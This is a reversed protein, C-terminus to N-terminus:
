FPLEDPHQLKFNISKEMEVRRRDVLNLDTDVLEKEYILSKYVVNRSLHDLPTFAFSNTGISIYQLSNDDHSVDDREYFLTTLNSCQCFAGSEIQCLEKPLRFSSLMYCNAFTEENIISVKDSIEITSLKTCGYFAESDINIVNPLRVVELHRCNKFARREVYEADSCVITKNLDVCRVICRAGNTLTRYVLGDEVFMDVTDHFCVKRDRIWRVSYDLDQIKQEIYGQDFGQDLLQCRIDEIYPMILTDVLKAFDERLCELYIDQYSPMKEDWERILYDYQEYNISITRYEEIINFLLAKKNNGEKDIIHGYTSITIKIKIDNM